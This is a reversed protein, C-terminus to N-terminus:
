VGKRYSGQVGGAFDGQDDDDKDVKSFVQTTQGKDKDLVM